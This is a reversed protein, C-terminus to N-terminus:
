ESHFDLLSDNETGDKQYSTKKKFISLFYRFECYDCVEDDSKGKPLIPAKESKRLFNRRLYTSAFNKIAKMLAEFGM